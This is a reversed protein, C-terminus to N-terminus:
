AKLRDLTSNATLKAKFVWKSGVVNMYPERPVLTWIQNQRLADLEELMVCKWGDHQLAMKVNRPEEPIDGRELVLVYCLNPKHIGHQAKTVMPYPTLQVTISFAEVWLFKPMGSHFIMAMGLERIIRHHREVIGDSVLSDGIADITLPSGDVIFVSDCGVYKKLNSLIGSSTTMHNSAGTDITWETNAITTDM